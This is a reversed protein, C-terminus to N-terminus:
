FAYGGDEREILGKTHDRQSLGTHRSSKAAAVTWPNEFERGKGFFRQAQMVYETGVSGKAQCYAAYRAVGALMVEATVGDKLRAKWASHAKNKPNAGERKPYASWAAEFGDDVHAECSVSPDTSPDIVSQTCSSCGTRDDNAGRVTTMQVGDDRRPAATAGRQILVDYCIPRKDKRDIYAAVIAPNGRRIVGARELDDLKYRITRESLGTDAKLTEVSPFAGRGDQNAYNALCLLVHRATADTVLQQELAWTMAQISM